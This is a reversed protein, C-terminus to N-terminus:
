LCDCVTVATFSLVSAEARCRQEPKSTDSTVTQGDAFPTEVPGAEWFELSHSWIAGPPMSGHPAPMLVWLM